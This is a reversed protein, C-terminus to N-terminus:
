RSTSAAGAGCGGFSGGACRTLEDARMPERVTLTVFHTPPLARFSSRLAASMRRAWLDRCELSCRPRGCPILRIVGTGWDRVPRRRVCRAVVVAPGRREGESVDPGDRALCTLTVIFPQRTPASPQNVVGPSPERAHDTVGQRAHGLDIIV